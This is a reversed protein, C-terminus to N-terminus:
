KKDGDDNKMIARAFGPPAALMRYLRRDEPILPLLYLFYFLYLCNSNASIKEHLFHFPFTLRMTLDKSPFSISAM